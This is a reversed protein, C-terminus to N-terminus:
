EKEVPKKGGKLILVMQQAKRTEGSQKLVRYQKVWDRLIMRGLNTANTDFDEDAWKVLALLDMQGSGGFTIRLAPKYKADKSVIKTFVRKRTM